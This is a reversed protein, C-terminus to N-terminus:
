LFALKKRELFMFEHYFATTPSNRVHTMDVFFNEGKNNQIKEGPKAFLMLIDSRHQRIAVLGSGPAACSGPDLWNCCASPPPWLQRPRM